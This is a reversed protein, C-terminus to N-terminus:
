TLLWSLEREEKKLGAPDEDKEKKEKRKQEVEKRSQGEPVGIWWKESKLKNTVGVPTNEWPWPIM